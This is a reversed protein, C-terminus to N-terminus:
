GRLLERLYRAGRPVATEAEEEGEYEISLFGRYSAARLIAMIAPWDLRREVGREDLEYLKAHVHIAQGITREISALDPYDGTDLCLRLWPSGVEGLAREVEAATAVLGGGDHNELGLIVGREQAYAASEGLCRVVEPWLVGKQAARLPAWPRPSSGGGSAPVPLWGAFVRLVPAGLFGAIDLWRKVRVLEREREGATPRGFDNSVSVCSISLHLEACRRKIERLYATDTSPFHLDLLEVGDLALEGACVGLWDTLSLRGSVIAQHYSWSSCGLKM